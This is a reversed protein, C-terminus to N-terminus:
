GAAERYRSILEEMGEPTLNENLAEARYPEPFLQNVRDKFGEGGEAVTMTPPDAALTIVVPGTLKPALIWETGRQAMACMHYAYVQAVEDVSDADAPNRGFIRVGCVTTADGVEDHDGHGHDEAPMKELVNVVKASLQADFGEEGAAGAPSDSGLAGARNLAFLGGLAVVLLVALWVFRSPGRRTQPVDVDTSV